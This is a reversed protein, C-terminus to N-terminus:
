DGGALTLIVTEDPEAETDDIPTVTKTATSANAPIVVSTGLDAYDVGNTATGSLNFNVTLAASRNGLRTFTFRGTKTGAESALADTAAVTVLAPEDDLITVTAATPTGLVYGNGAALTVTVTEALEPVDDDIPFVEVTATAVGAPITVPSGLAKYDVGATATGGVNFNVAVAQSKDGLRTFTFVGKGGSNELVSSTTAAVKITAPENDLITVSASKPSGVKYDPGDAIAMVVVREDLEPIADDVPTVLITATASGAAFTVKPEIPVYDTGSTATGSVTLAVTLPATTDSTRTLTIVGSKPGEEKAIPDTAAITVVPTDNDTISVTASNPIGIDYGNGQALTLIVTETPEILTDDVPTVTKTATSANAPILVSTGLDAYDVGNQATGSLTFNVTLATSRIGLRTFTFRGTKSGAESAAADTAAVTVVTPEDDLITVTAASPTGLTYGAGAALTLTVTEALEAVQDDIPQVQVIASEAGAPITVPSALAHYDVDSTATGGVTFNVSLATDTPGTRTVTFKGSGSASNEAISSTTAKVTVVADEAWVFSLGLLGIAIVLSCRSNLFLM